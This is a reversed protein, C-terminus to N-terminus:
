FLKLVSQSTQTALSLSNIALQQRIELSLANASEKNMDALVLKDAGESLLNALNQTFKERNQVVLYYNGFEEQSSRIKNIANEIDHISKEVDNPNSWSSPELGLAKTTSNIGKIELGSSREENFSVKLQDGLLLNIGNYYSDNILNDIHNLVENYQHSNKIAVTAINSSFKQNLFNNFINDFNNWNNTPWASTNSLEAINSNWRIYNNTSASNNVDTYKTNAIKYSENNQYKLGIKAGKEIILTCPAPPITTGAYGNSIANANFTTEIFIQASSKITTKNGGLPETPAQQFNILGMGGSKVNVIGAINLNSNNYVLIGIANNQTTTINVEATAALNLTAYKSIHFGRGHIGTAKLNLKSGDNINITGGGYSMIAYAHEGSTQVNITSNSSTNVLSNDACIGYGRDSNTQINLSDSFIINQSNRINIGRADTAPATDANINLNSVTVNQVGIINIVSAATTNSHNKYDIDFNSITSNSGVNIVKKNSNSNFSFSLKRNPGSYNAFYNDGVLSQGDKLLIQSSLTIDESIVIYGKQESNIADLLEQETKVKAIISSEGELAQVAIANAQELFSIATQLAKDTEKLIQISMSMSDMLQMLDKSRNNLASATYYNSANDIASNVKKGTALRNQTTSQLHATQQLSLLNSRMSHGISINNAM